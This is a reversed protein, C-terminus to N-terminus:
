AYTFATAPDCRVSSVVLLKNPQASAFGALADLAEHTFDPSAMLADGDLLVVVAGIEATHARSGPDVLARLVDGYDGFELKHDPVRGKLPEVNVNSLVLLRLPRRSSM